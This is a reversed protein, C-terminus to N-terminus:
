NADGSVGRTLESLLKTMAHGAFGAVDDRHINGHTLWRHKSFWEGAYTELLVATERCHTQVAETFKTQQALNAFRRGEGVETALVRSLFYNLCRVTFRTFFDKALRRYQAETALAALGRRVDDPTTGYLGEGHPSLAGSLAEVASMQAMEGLDTRGRCNPMRADIAEATAGLLEYLGPAHELDIGCDHLAALYQDARAALPLRMLLWVAEVVGKDNAARRLNADAAHITANAIQSVEAGHSILGVVQRWRRRHPLDFGLHIHGM